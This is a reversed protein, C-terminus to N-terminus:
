LASTCSDPHTHQPASLWTYGQNPLHLPPAADCRAVQRILRPRNEVWALCRGSGPRADRSGAWRVARVVIQTEGLARKAIYRFPYHLSCHPKETPKMCAPPPFRRPPYAQEASGPAAPRPPEQSAIGVSNNNVLLHMKSLVDMCVMIHKRM